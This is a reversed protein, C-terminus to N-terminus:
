YRLFKGAVRGSLYGALIRGNSAWRLQTVEDGMQDALAGPLCMSPGDRNPMADAVDYLYIRGDRGGTALLDGDPQWGQLTPCCWPLHHDCTTVVWVLRAAPARCRGALCLSTYNVM